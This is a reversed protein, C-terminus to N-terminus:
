GVLATLRSHPRAPETPPEQRGDREHPQPRVPLPSRPEHVPNGCNAVGTRTVVREFDRCDSCRVGIRGVVVLPPSSILPLAPQGEPSLRLAPLDDVTVTAGPIFSLSNRM